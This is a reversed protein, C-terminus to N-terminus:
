PTPGQLGPLLGEMLSELATGMGGIAAMLGLVVLAAIMGYEIGIHGSRNRWLAAIAKSL